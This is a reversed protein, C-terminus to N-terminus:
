KLKEIITAKSALDPHEYHYFSTFIRPHESILSVLEPYRQLRDGPLQSVGRRWDPSFALSASYEQALPSASLPTLLTIQPRVNDLQMDRTLVLMTAFFDDMDEFPFGWMYSTHVKPLIQASVLVVREAEACTFEKNILKLVRDSGSELGYFIERCGLDRLETLLGQTMHNVRGSCSWPLCVGSDLVQRQVATARKPDLVFTDDYYAYRDIEGELRKLERAVHEAGRYTMRRQWISHSSCFSCRYPCGRATIILAQRGYNAFSVHEYAPLPLGDLDEIRPRDPTSIVRGNRRFTIGKISDLTGGNKIARMLEVITEEGEGRVIVDVPFSDMIERPVDTPSPGGLIVTADPRLSKFRGVAGLVTPLATCMVSIGILNEPVDMFSLFRDVSPKDEAQYTQYDGFSVTFGNEQLVAAIMLPGIPVGSSVLGLSSNLIAIDAAV